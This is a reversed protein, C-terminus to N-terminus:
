SPAPPDVARTHVPSARRPEKVWGPGGGLACVPPRPQSERAAGEYVDMAGKGLAGAVGTAVDLPARAVRLCAEGLCEAPELLAQGTQQALHAGAVASGRAADLARTVGGATAKMTDTIVHEAVAADYYCIFLLHCTQM